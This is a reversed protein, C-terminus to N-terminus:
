LGLELVEPDTLRYVGDPINVQPLRFSRVERSPRSIAYVIHEDEGVSEDWAFAQGQADIDVTAIHVLKPGMAPAGMVYMEPRDHGTLYLLGDPGIAGGSAAMPDMRELVSNPIMWGGVRRWHDDYRIISAFLHDKYDLGGTEDYHAFGAIWGGGLRNFWNFTGEEMMGLSFSRYHQMTTTDFIEISNAMPTEPYNSNSCLLSDSEVICSNLHKIPGSRPLSWRKILQGSSKVYKGIASNVIAYFHSSDVAVGQIAEPAEYRSIEEAQLRVIEPFAIDSSSNQQAFVGLGTTIVFLLIVLLLVRAKLGENYQSSITIM